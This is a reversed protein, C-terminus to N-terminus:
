SAQDESFRQLTERLEKMCAVLEDRAEAACAFDNQRGMTELRLAADHTRTSAFNTVSGRIKHAARELASADSREIANEVDDFLEPAQQVFLRAIRQLLARDGELAHLAADLDAIPIQPV